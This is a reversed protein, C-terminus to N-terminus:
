EIKLFVRDGDEKNYVHKGIMGLLKRIDEIDSSAFEIYSNEPDAANEKEYFDGVECYFEDLIDELPYQSIHTDSPENEGLDPEPEFVVSTVYTLETAGREYMDEYIIDEGSNDEEDPLERYYKKGEYFLVLLDEEIERSGKEWSNAARLKQVLEADDVGKLSLSDDSEEYETYTKYINPEIEEYQATGYKEAKYPRINKM